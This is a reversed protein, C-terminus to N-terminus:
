RDKELSPRSGAVIDVMGDARPRAPFWDCRAGPLADALAAFEEKAFFDGCQIANLKTLGRLPRLSGDAVKTNVLFLYELDGLASVPGLSSLHMPSWTGGEVGLATLRTCVSLPGLDDLGRCNVLSLGKLRSLSAVWNLEGLDPCNEIILRELHNLGGLGSLDRATVKDLALLELRDLQCIEDLFPQNVGYAWLATLSRLTGIGRHSSKDRRLRLSSEAGSCDEVRTVWEPLLDWEFGLGSDIREQHAEHHVTM